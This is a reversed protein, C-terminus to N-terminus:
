LASREVRRVEHPFVSVLSGEPEGFEVVYSEGEGHVSVITGKAGAPIMDGDDSVTDALLVVDDLDRLSSRPVDQKFRYAFEISM